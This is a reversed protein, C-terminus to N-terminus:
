MMKIKKTPGEKSDNNELWDEHGESEGCGGASEKLVKRNREIEYSSKRL